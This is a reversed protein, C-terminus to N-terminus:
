ESNFGVVVPGTQQKQEHGYTYEDDILKLSAAFQRSASLNAPLTNGSDINGRDTNGRDTNGRDTNGRDTNGRDTNGRDTNGRDTNARDIQDFKDMTDTTLTNEIEITSIMPDSM